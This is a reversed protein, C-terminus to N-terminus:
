GSEYFTEQYLLINEPYIAMQTGVVGLVYLDEDNYM